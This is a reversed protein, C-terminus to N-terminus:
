DTRTFPWALVVGLGFGGVALVTVLLATATGTVELWWALGLAALLGLVGGVLGLGVRM